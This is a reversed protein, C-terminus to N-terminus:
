IALCMNTEIQRRSILGKLKKGASYVWYKLENCAAITNAVKLYKAIRTSTGDQNTKFTTCGTNFIFSVMADKQGQTLAQIPAASVLCNQADIINLVWDKAIQEDTKIEGIDGHTNGIGDTSLGAPCKYPTRRCSEANGIVELAQPSVFLVGISEGAIVVEGIPASPTENTYVAGGTVIGIIATVSCIIKKTINM